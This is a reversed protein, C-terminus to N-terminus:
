PEHGLRAVFEAYNGQSDDLLDDLFDDKALVKHLIINDGSSPKTLIMDESLYNDVMEIEDESYALLGEHKKPSCLFYTRENVWYVGYVNLLDGYGPYGKKEIDKIVM